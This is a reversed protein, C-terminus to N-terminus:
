QKRKTTQITAEGALFNVVFGHGFEYTKEKRLIYERIITPDEELNKSECHAQIIKMFFSHSVMVLPEASNRITDLIREARSLIEKRKESLTDQIFGEVFRERVLESGMKEFEERTVLKSLDFRVECLDECVQPQDGLTQATSLARKLPSCM